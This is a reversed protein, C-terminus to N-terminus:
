GRKEIKAWADRLAVTRNFRGTQRADFGSRRLLLGAARVSISHRRRADRLEAGAQLRDASGALESEPQRHLGPRRGGPEPEGEHVPQRLAPSRRRRRARGLGLPDDVEGQPWRARQRRPHGPRLHLPNRRREGNTTRSWARHVHHLLRLAPASRPRARPPLIAQASRRPFRGARHLASQLVAGQAHRRAADEPNNVADMEEVQGEPYNDIVVSLPRLVAMVRLARKNLDERVYHELLGLEISATRRRSASPARLLQPDSRAHLRPPAHRLADAHAPRGLRQRARGAGAEAAQAQEAPHLHPEAPRVRDAASPFIGLQEIFWDYLPRHDEFELTCISHTIGRSRIPSATRTTTCRISAGSTAPATISPTCSATCSRTACTSTRRRWTSRPACRARATPSSAPEEHARVSRSERRRLSQSLPQRQRTRHAHRPVARIQDATLDCVYAKGAKILQVAWEYLQDFYDSAYFLRRGLRLRALARRWSPISTSRRKRRPIPTTSACTADQRRVGRGTRLELCISKAHGIHLYGNPEPPFRTHM